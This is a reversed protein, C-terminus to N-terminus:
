VYFKKIKDMQNKENINLITNGVNQLFPDRINNHLSCHFIFHYEDEVVLSDCMKCINEELPISGWKGTDISLNLIRCHYQDLYSRHKRNIFSLTYTEVKYSNKFTIIDLLTPQPTLM